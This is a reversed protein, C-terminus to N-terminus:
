IDRAVNQVRRIAWFLNVATPRSTALYECVEDLRKLFEAPPKDLSRRVGLYVGFAAAIGIAPAGRVVLRRIADHMQKEDLIEVYTTENPLKTQDLLRLASGTWEIPKLM